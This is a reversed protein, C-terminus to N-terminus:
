GKCSSPYNEATNQVYFYGVNSHVAKLMLLCRLTSSGCRLSILVCNKPLFYLDMHPCVLVTWNEQQSVGGLNLKALIRFKDRFSCCYVETM